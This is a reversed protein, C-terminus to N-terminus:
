KKYDKKADILYEISAECSAPKPQKLVDELRVSLAGVQKNVNGALKDFQQKVQDSTKSVVDLSKSVNEISGVLKNVNKELTEIAQKQQSITEKQEVITEKMDNWKWVFFGVVLAIAIERWYNKLFGFALTWM